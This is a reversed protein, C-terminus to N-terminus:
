LAPKTPLYQTFKNKDHFVKNDRDITNSLKAPYLLRSKGKKGKPDDAWSTRVKM